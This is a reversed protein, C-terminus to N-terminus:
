VCQMRCLFRPDRGMGIFQRVETSSIETADGCSYLHLGGAGRAFRRHARHGLFFFFATSWYSASDGMGPRACMRVISRFWWNPWGALLEDWQPCKTLSLFAEQRVILV